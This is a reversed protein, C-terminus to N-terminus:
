DYPTHHENSGLFLMYGDIRNQLELDYHVKYNYNNISLSIEEENAAETTSVAVSTSTQKSTCNINDIALTPQLAVVSPTPSSTTETAGIPLEKASQTATTWQLLIKKCSPIILLHHGWQGM